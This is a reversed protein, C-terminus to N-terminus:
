GFTAESGSGSSVLPVRPGTKPKESRMIGLIAVTPQNIEVAFFYARAKEKMNEKLVFSFDWFIPNSGVVKCNPTQSTALQAIRLNAQLNTPQKPAIFYVM